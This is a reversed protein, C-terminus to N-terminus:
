EKAKQMAAIADLAPQIKKSVNQAASMYATAVKSIAPDECDDYLDNLEEISTWGRDEPKIAANILLIVAEFFAKEELLHFPTSVDPNEAKIRIFTNIGFNLLYIKDGLRLNFKTESPAIETTKKSM